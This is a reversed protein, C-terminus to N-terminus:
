DDVSLVASADVSQVSVSSAPENSFLETGIGHNSNGLDENLVELTDRDLNLRRTGERGLNGSVRVHDGVEITEKTWGSRSLGILNGTEIDWLETTEAADVVELYYHVHPNAWFVEVVVGQITGIADEDYTASIAHHGQALDCNLCFISALTFLSFYVRM